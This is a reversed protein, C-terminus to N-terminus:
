PKEMASSLQICVPPTNILISLECKSSQIPHLCIKLQGNQSQNPDSAPGGSFVVLMTTIISLSCLFIMYTALITMKQAVMQVVIAKVPLLVFQTIPTLKTHWKHGLYVLVKQATVVWGTDWVKCIISRFYDGGLGAVTPGESSLTTTTGVFLSGVIAYIDGLQLLMFSILLRPADSIFYGVWKVTNTHLLGGLLTVNALWFSNLSGLEGVLAILNPAITPRSSILNDLLLAKYTSLSSVHDWLDKIRIVDIASTNSRISVEAAARLETEFEDILITSFNLKATNTCYGLLTVYVELSGVNNPGSNAVSFM